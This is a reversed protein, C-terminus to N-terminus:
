TLCTGKKDNLAEVVHVQLQGVMFLFVRITRLRSRDFAGLKRQLFLPKKCFVIFNFVSWLALVFLMDWWFARHNGVVELLPQSLERFLFCVQRFCQGTAHVKGDATDLGRMGQMNKATSFDSAIM